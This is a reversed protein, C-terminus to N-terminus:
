DVTLTRKVMFSKWKFETMFHWLKVLQIDFSYYCLQSANTLDCLRIFKSEKLENLFVLVIAPRMVDTCRENVM